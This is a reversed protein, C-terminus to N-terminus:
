AKGFMEALLEQWPWVEVQQLFRRSQGLYAVVPRCKKGYFTEFSKLGTLDDVGVNTSAKAEIAWVQDRMEVIFDVEAGAGTRYSSIRIPTDYSWATNQIQNFLLNEFHLGIRDLSVTFSELLGGLVGTDFFFYRPHQVLRRRESKAFAAVRSVILTDELIEFFRTATQRPVAAESSLKNLDLFQGSTVAALFLFRSFGEINKTLAEAQIEERLYTSAYSRLTKAAEHDDAEAYIGPLTGFALARKTDLGGEVESSVLPGLNYTHIRGPLLNASGRRLKRASSGTLLFRVGRYPGDILVQLTNLLSPLRQIEDILVQGSRIPGLREELEGPNRSFRVFTPDHMLNFALDPKLSEMLTSKGAQRPGLLLCSKKSKELIQLINRRYM